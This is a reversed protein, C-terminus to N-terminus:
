GTSASTKEVVMLGIDPQKSGITSALEHPSWVVRPWVKLRSSRQSRRVAQGALEHVDVPQSLV